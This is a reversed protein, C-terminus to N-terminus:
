KSPPRHLRVMAAATVVRSAETTDFALEFNVHRSDVASAEDLTVSVDDLRDVLPLATIWGKSAYEDLVLMWNTGLAYEKDELDKAAQTWGDPFTVFLVDLTADVGNYVLWRIETAHVTDSEREDNLWIVLNRGDTQLLCRSPSVYASLRAAAASASVMTTRSDRRTNVGATVAGMMGSIAGAILATVVLALMLELMTLGGRRPARRRGIM